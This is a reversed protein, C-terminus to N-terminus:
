QLVAQRAYSIKNETATLEEMLQSVNANAKLDPYNEAIALLRGLVGGLEQEAKIRDGVGQASVAKARAQIVKDLTEQEFKM